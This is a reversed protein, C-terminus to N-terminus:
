SQPFFNMKFVINMLSSSAHPLASYESRMEMMAIIESALDNDKDSNKHGKLVKSEQLRLNISM